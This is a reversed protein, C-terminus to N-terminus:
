NRIMLQIGLWYATVIRTVYRALPRFLLMAILLFNLMLSFGLTPMLVEIMEPTLM